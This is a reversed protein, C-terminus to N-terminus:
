KALGLRRAADLVKQYELVALALLKTAKEKWPAPDAAAKSAQLAFDALTLLAKVRKVSKALEARAARCLADQSGPCASAAADAALQMTNATNKASNITKALNFQWSGTCGFLTVVCALATILRLCHRM